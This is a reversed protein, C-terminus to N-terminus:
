VQPPEREPNAQEENIPELEAHVVKEVQENEHMFRRAMQEPVFDPWASRKQQGPESEGVQENGHVMM